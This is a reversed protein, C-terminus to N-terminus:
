ENCGEQLSFCGLDQDCSPIWPSIDHDRGTMIIDHFAPWNRKAQSSQESSDTHYIKQCIPIPIVVAASTPLLSVRTCHTYLYYSNLISEKHAVHYCLLGTSITTFIYFDGTFCNGQSLLVYSCERGVKITFSPKKRKQKRFKLLM